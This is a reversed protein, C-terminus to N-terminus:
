FTINLGLSMSKLMPYSYGDGATGTQGNWGSADGSSIVEPDFNKAWKHLPTITLLNEGSVYVVLSTLGLKSILNQSFAYSLSVTKLRLYAANQLYRNNRRSLTGKNDEAIYGRLRPWYATPNTIDGNADAGARNSANQWPLDYGYVRGYNGWFLGAESNPYWDRKAVGQWFM